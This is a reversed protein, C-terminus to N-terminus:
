SARADSDPLLRFLTWSGPSNSAAALVRAPRCFALSPLMRVWLLWEQSYAVAQVKPISPAPGINSVSRDSILLVTSNCHASGVWRSAISRARARGPNAKFGFAVQRAPRRVNCTYRAMRPEGLVAAQFAVPSPSGCTARYVYLTLLGARCRAEAHLAFGPRALASLMAERHTPEACYSDVTKRIELRLLGLM